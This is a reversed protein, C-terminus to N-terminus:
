RDLYKSKISINLFTNVEIQTYYFTEVFFKGIKYSSWWWFVLQMRECKLLALIQYAQRKQLEFPQLISFKQSPPDEVWFYAVNKTAYTNYVNVSDTEFIPASGTKGKEGVYWTFLVM